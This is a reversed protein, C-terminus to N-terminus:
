AFDDPYQVTEEFAKSPLVQYKQLIEKTSDTSGDDRVILEVEAECQQKLVSNIQQAIFKEGNYSSMLV